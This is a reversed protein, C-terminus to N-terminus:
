VSCHVAFCQQMAAEDACCASRASAHKSAHMLMILSTRLLVQPAASVITDAAASAAQDLKGVRMANAIAQMWLKAEFACASVVAVTADGIMTSGKSGADATAQMGHEGQAGEAM